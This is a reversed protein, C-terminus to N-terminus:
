TRELQIKAEITEYLNKCDLLQKGMDLFSLFNLIVQIENKANEVNECKIISDIEYIM